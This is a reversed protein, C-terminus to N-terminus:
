LAFFVDLRRVAETREFVAASTEADLDLGEVTSRAGDARTIEIRPPGSQHAVVPVQCVTFALTGPDLALDYFPFTRPATLFEDRNVLHARFSLRGAEVVVGMEGLRSIIDEKVQGTMGPQQVGAFGPTHSYPDTPIAGYLEPPKHAGIGERIDQYHRRLREVVSADEGAAAARDMVEQVALLLKSVMHWYICGLGEYKYFTGSRGTFSQHDFVEEYLALIQAREEDPLGLPALAEKLLTANRFAANFHSVGNVDQVVIRRDALAKSKAVAAAPINNKEFFGPLKRDPYLVYSNQDARYLKSSRLADLLAASERASLAGSGLVAMQGELMEYLRRIAIGDGAVKMLNYAHYLGDSRRNARISHDIHRLAVDCFATLEAATLATQTGSFGSAYLQARYDSGVVGLADLVAKRDRDSIPGELLGAHRELAEAVRHFAEAVEASVEIPETFLGRCFSLFRRLAYLTVMSVGSGVLANNADNWEPRQTNMWLGAEPIYNFLRALALVLLKEALNVRYPTGDAGPLAKGDAGLTAARRRIERDLAADFDITNRSDELLAAYPKIRYPVDAYTFVRRALLNALAGPHYRASVELLKLLYVVQHDGWYGIYSWADHPDLVEWDFGDRMIRYPNYGDATSAGAFKFIMSEVYGPFSLALAEWNQFIDRWNGQYNLLREGHEGKVEISFINWPRSPDGHRRSFTLPLYEHALRELDPDRRERALALLRSHLVPDPLADLFAAQRAAVARSAQAIFAQFDARSIWYGRDPIGGRMTNFLASSFHRWSNLDDGTVELGDAGAVIRVLSETGREVDEDLQARLNEGSKVLRVLAAVGAADQNVEAVMRWEKRERAPLALRSHIFYAGRRGRILTEDEVALGQRFRDLQAACLLRHAPEIGESWVTTARLAESPEPRDAPISSLKFLGLGTAPDLENEKYGDALTSYEMQFRRTLGYPMLNQIGDLLDIDIPEGGLNVLATRRVFGFRDSTMWACSFSLGLDHNVEEFVIKNSYVNKALSRTIRYLGEYRQSFPEWLSTRGGRTGLVITKGGTQDQSDHIRDDTYYPFLAHDPDRRGATLAGTSSVFMWHDSDSVLSMLFPPMADYNVIRYFREGGIDIHGGEVKRSCRNLPAEGVFATTM